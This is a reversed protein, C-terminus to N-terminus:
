PSKEQTSTMACALGKLGCFVAVGLVWADWWSHWYSPQSWPGLASAVNAACIFFWWNM